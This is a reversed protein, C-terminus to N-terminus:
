TGWHVTSFFKAQKIPEFTYM